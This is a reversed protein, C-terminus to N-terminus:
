TLHCHQWLSPLIGSALWLLHNCLLLEPSCLACPLWAIGLAHWVACRVHCTRRARSLGGTCHLEVAAVPKGQVAPTGWEQEQPGACSTACCLSVPALRCSLHRRGARCAGTLPAIGAFCMRLGRLACAHQVRVCCCPSWICCTRHMDFGSDQKSVISHNEQRRSALSLMATTKDANPCLQTRASILQHPVDVGHAQATATPCQVFTPTAWDAISLMVTHETLCGASAGHGSLQPSRPPAALGHWGSTDAADRGAHPPLASGVLLSTCSSKSGMCGLSPEASPFAHGRASALGAQRSGGHAFAARCRPVSAVTHVGLAGRMLVLQAPPPPSSTHEPSASQMAPRCRKMASSLLLGAAPM